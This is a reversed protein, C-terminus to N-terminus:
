YFMISSHGDKQVQVLYGSYGHEHLSRMFCAIPCVGAQMVTAYSSAWDLRQQTKKNICYEKTSDSLLGDAGIDHIMISDNEIRLITDPPNASFPYHYINLYFRTTGIKVPLMSNIAKKDDKKVTIHTIAEKLQAISTHCTDGMCDASPKFLLVGDMYDIQLDMPGTAQAAALTSICAFLLAFPLKLVIPTKRPTFM